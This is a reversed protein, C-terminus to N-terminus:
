RSSPRRAARVLSLASLGLLAAGVAALAWWWWAAGGGDTADSMTPLAGVAEAQAVVATAAPTSAVGPVISLCVEDSHPSIGWENAASVRYCWHGSMGCRQAYAAMSFTTQDPGTVETILEPGVFSLIFCAEDTSNDDWTFDVFTPQPLGPEDRLAVRLNSPATPAQPSGVPGDLNCGPPRTPVPTASLLPTFTEVRPVVEVQVCAENSYASRGAENGYYVRYCHVGVRQPIDEVSVTDTSVPSEPSGSEYFAWDGEGVKREIAYCLEDAANDEWRLRVILGECVDPGSSLLAQLETPANPAGPAGAPGEGGCTGPVLTPTPSPTPSPTPTPTVSPTTVAPTATTWVPVAEVNVCAENSYPSRGAENGFQVRYCYTGVHYPIEEFSFSGVSAPPRTWDYRAGALPEPGTWEITYCIDNTANDDWTLLIIQGAIPGGGPVIEARLNEPPNPAGPAGISGEGQCAPPPPTAEFRVPLVEVDVCAEDSHSLGAANGYYVQYCHLGIEDPIDEVSTPGTAWGALGPSLGIVGVHQGRISKAVGFCTENNANDQWTLRVAFGSTLEPDDVLGVRLDSPAAPAGPATPNSPPAEGPTPTYAFFGCGVPTVFPTPTATLAAAAPTTAPTPTVSPSASPAPLHPASSVPMPTHALALAAATSGSLLVAVLIAFVLRASV